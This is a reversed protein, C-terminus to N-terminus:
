TREWSGVPGPIVHFLPHADPRVVAGYREALEPSRVRLKRMLHSWEYLLQGEAELMPVAASAPTIRAADFTYGRVLAEERLHRLYAAIAASPDPQARFRLLQPHGRYGRTAGSLVKQALLAERWAATLGQRDLYHPHLTWIRM